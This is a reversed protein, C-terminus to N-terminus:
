NESRITEIINQTRVKRISFRMIIWVLILVVLISILVGFVPFIFPPSGAYSSIRSGYISYIAISGLLGLPIGILLSKTTYLLSELAIMRNFERKTMGISQLVAFEKRRMRMNTSITNFINTLGILSIVIIFGYGFIEAILIISNAARALSAIDNISFTVNSFEASNLDSLEKQFQESSTVRYAGFVSHPYAGHNSIFKAYDEIRVFISVYKNPYGAEDLYIDGYVCGAIDVSFSNRLNDDEYGIFNCECSATPKSDDKLLNVVRSDAHVHELEYARQLSTIGEDYVKVNNHIFAKGKSEDFTTGCSEAMEAFKKDNIGYISFSCEFTNNETNINQSASSRMEDTVANLPLTITSVGFFTTCYIYDEVSDLTGIREYVNVYENYPKDSERFYASVGMNYPSTEFNERIYRINYEMFSNMAIFVAVSLVISVVTTRYQRRSRKMNKWAIMGGAGFLATIFRPTKYSKARKKGRKSINIDENSRIAVIPSIKSARVATNFVSLFITVIGLLVAGIVAILPVSLVLETGNLYSGMLGNCVSVLVAAAGIGLLVGLPIGFLGLIFGEFFVNSRIQKSTAGMSSIMGYLRTKETISIAFSNRIIFVSAGIIILFLFGVLLMFIRTSNVDSIIGKASLLAYNRTFSSIKYGNEMASQIIEEKLEETDSSGESRFYRDVVGAEAGILKAFEEIYRPEASDTFRIFVFDAAVLGPKYKADNDICTYVIVNGASGESIGGQMRSSIGTITYTTSSLTIFEPEEDSGIPSDKYYGMSLTIKDGAHYKKGSLNVFSPPLVLEDNKKPLVGEALEINLGSNYSDEDLAMITVTKTFVSLSDDFRAMGEGRCFFYNRVNPETDLKKYFEENFQGCVMIDYDGSTKAAADIMSQRVSAAMCAVVTILAISLVIGIVSVITRSINKRLSIVTLKHM